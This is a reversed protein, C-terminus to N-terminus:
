TPIAKKFAEALAPADVSELNTAILRRDGDEIRLTTANTKKVWALLAKAAIIITPTGLVLVLVSGFDQSTPDTRAAQSEIGNVALAAKLDNLLNQAESAPVDPLTIRLQSNM